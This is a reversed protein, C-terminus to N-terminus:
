DRPFKGVLGVLNQPLPYCVYLAHEIFYTCQVIVTYLHVLHVLHM